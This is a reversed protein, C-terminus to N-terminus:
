LGFALLALIIVYIVGIAASGYAMALYTGDAGELLSRRARAYAFAFLGSLPAVVGTLTVLFTAVIIRKAATIARERETWARYEDRTMPDAWPFRAGCRCVLRSSPIKADCAPCEKEDGWGAGVVVPPPAKEAEAASACGYTACGDIEEWCPRHYQQHCEACDTVADDPKILTGCISCRTM